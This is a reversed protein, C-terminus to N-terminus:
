YRRKRKKAKAKAEAAKAEDTEADGAEAETDSKAVEVLPKLGRDKVPSAATAVSRGAADTGTIRQWLVLLQSANFISSYTGTIVGILMAVIFQKTSSAGLLWLVVLTLIVTFSTNISRAFSQCISRNVLGDFNEGRIRHRLNERIRDFIVITDHTSFGIVTLVATVFLSDIEWKLFYGFIAFMGVLVFVDHLTALIACVGFRFGQALSGIAFRVSLYLVILIAALLVANRAKETLEQSITAGVHEQSQVTGGLTKLADKIQITKSADVEKTRIFVSNENGPDASKQIMNGTVGLDTLAKDIQASAVPQAFKVQWLGGGTFDIGKHLGNLSPSLWFIMGPVIVVASLLFWWKMKPVISIQRGSQGAVWQRSLGFLWAHESLSTSVALHLFTRTVVIATFMSLVVGLALIYAFGQIPGTGLYGLVACTILTCVNSDLISTFARSFGADIAAHLTKGSRLEEKLREFILINADVAMGISIIYAAIGPLTLTVHMLKFAALTLLAYIALACDALLGPLLYYGMMFLVVLILGILGAKTSQTVAVKGITAEVTQQQVIKLPVPLSGANLLDALRQADELSKFGGSIVAQGDLIPENIKPVSLIKGDLIIALFEETHSRTFDGFIKKGETTFSLKVVPRGNEYDARSESKLYAGTLILPSEQIITEPKVDNGKSDTFSYVEVGTQPDPAVTERYKAMPHRTNQVSNFQRFELMATSQLLQIAEDSTVGPLEIVIQNDGKQQILPESVHLGDVRNSLVGMVSNLTEPTWKQGKPMKDTEAQLVIRTGGNIDLGYKIPMKKNFVIWSAAIVLLIM